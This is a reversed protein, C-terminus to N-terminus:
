LLSDAVVSQAIHIHAEDAEGLDEERCGERPQVIGNPM